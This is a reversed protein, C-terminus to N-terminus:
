LLAKRVVDPLRGELLVVTDGTLHKKLRAALKLPNTLHHIHFYPDIASAGAKLAAIQGHGYIYVHAQSRALAAGIKQHAEVSENGLEILPVLVIIKNKQPFRQLHRLAVLVGAENASYSDDIIVVKSKGTKIEMTRPYPQLTTATSALKTFPIGLAAAAAIAAVASQLLAESALPLEIDATETRVHLRTTISTPHIVTKEVWIDAPKQMSYWHTPCLPPRDNAQAVQNPDDANLIAIGNAPLAVILEWKAAIINELSGFLDLHQNGLTTVIGIRPQTFNAVAAVEGRRYAGMEAIYIETESTLRALIDQAVPLAANRHEASALANKGAARMLQVLFHKTSTKGFSGTIGVVTLSALQQRKRAARKIIARKKMWVPINVLGVTIATVFPLLFTITALSLVSNRNIILLCLSVLAIGVLNLMAKQTIVPRILGRRLVRYGYHSAFLGLSAWGFLEAQELQFTSIAIWGLAITLMGCSFLPMARLNLEPSHLLARVRDWRYEKRQWLEVHGLIAPLVTGLALLLGFLSLTTM